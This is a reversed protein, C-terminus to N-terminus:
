VTEWCELAGLTLEVATICAAKVTLYRGALWPGEYLLRAAAYFPKIDIEVVTAGLKGLHSLVVDYAAGRSSLSPDGGIRDLHALRVM